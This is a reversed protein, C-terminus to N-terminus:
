HRARGPIYPGNSERRHSVGTVKKLEYGPATENKVEEKASPRVTTITQASSSLWVRAPPLRVIERMARYQALKWSPKLFAGSYVITARCM